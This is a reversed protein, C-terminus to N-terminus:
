NMLITNLLRLHSGDPWLSDLGASPHPLVYSNCLHFLPNSDSLYFSPNLVVADSKIERNGQEAEVREEGLFPPLALAM